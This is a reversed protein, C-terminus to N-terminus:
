VPAEIDDEERDKPDMLLYSVINPDKGALAAVIADQKQLMKTIIYEQKMFEGEPVIMTQAILRLGEVVNLGKQYLQCEKKDDFIKGDTAKYASIRKM